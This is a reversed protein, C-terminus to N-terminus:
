KKFFLNFNELKVWFIGHVVLANTINGPLCFFIPSQLFLKIEFFVGAQVFAVESGGLVVPHLPLGVVIVFALPCAIPVEPRGAAWLIVLRTNNEIIEAEFIVLRFEEIPSVFKNIM